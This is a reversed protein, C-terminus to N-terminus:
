NVTPSASAGVVPRGAAAWALMGGSLNYADFGQQVLWATVHASRNGSHCVVVVPADRDLLDPEYNLTNPLLRMPVHLAGDIHADDWEDDERVDLLVPRTADAPLTAVDVEPVRPNV